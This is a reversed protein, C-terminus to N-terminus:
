ESPPYNTELNSFFLTDYFFDRPLKPYKCCFEMGHGYNQAAAQFSAFSIDYYSTLAAQLLKQFHERCSSINEEATYTYTASKGYALTLMKRQSNQAFVKLQLTDTLMHIPKINQFIQEKISCINRNISCHIGRISNNSQKQLEGFLNELIEKEPLYYSNEIGCLELCALFLYLKQKPMNKDLFVFLQKVNARIAQSILALFKAPASYDKDILFFVTEAAQKKYGKCFGSSSKEVFIELAETLTNESFHFALATKIASRIDPTCTEYAAACLEDAIKYQELSDFVNQM